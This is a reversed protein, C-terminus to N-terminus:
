FLQRNSCRLKNKKNPQFKLLEIKSDRQKSTFPIINYHSHNNLLVPYTTDYILYDIQADPFEVALNECIISSVLVDGIM